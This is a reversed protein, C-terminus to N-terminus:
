ISTFRACVQAVVPINLCKTVGPVLVLVTSHMCIDENSLSLCRPTGPTYIFSYDRERGDQLGIIYGGDDFEGAV